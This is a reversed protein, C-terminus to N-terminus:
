LYLVFNIALSIDKSVLDLFVVIFDLLFNIEALTVNSCQLGLLDPSITFLVNCFYSREKYFVLFQSVVM